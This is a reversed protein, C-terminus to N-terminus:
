GGHRDDATFVPRPRGFLYATVRTLRSIVAGLLLAFGVLLAAKIAWRAPLGGPSESVENTSVSYSVFPVTYWMILVIFPLLFLLIGFLEVWAKTNLGFKEYIVDVRIHDDSAYCYSLGILFGVAYIHWQIEEFEIRGQGLLYRMGVNLVIVGVLLLWLWSTLAGIRRLVADIGLSLSTRPLEAHHVLDHILDRDGSGEPQGTSQQSSNTM